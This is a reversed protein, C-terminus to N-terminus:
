REGALWREFARFTERAATVVGAEREPTTVYAALGTGFSRWMPGTEPGYGSFFAGGSDATVSPGAALQRAIIQGGLTAGELVYLCGLAHAVDPLAPLDGCRPLAPLESPSLGLALLDRAILGAKRRAAVDSLALILGEIRHLSAELPAYFGYFQVLVARYAERSRLRSPLDVIREIQEHHFQTDRKLRQMIM